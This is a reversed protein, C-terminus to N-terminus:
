QLYDAMVYNSIDTGRETLCFGEPTRKLLGQALHRRIVDGYVDDLSKGFRSAFDSTKVGATMRLGLFMFEEMKEQETLLHIETRVNGYVQEIEAEVCAKEMEMIYTEFDPINSFRVGNVYSAAGIGFGLYSHGRWYGSNHRCERGKLAYNSIEYRGYGHQALYERTYHYMKRDTEEDPLPPLEGADYLASFPTGPEIILSYASIHEPRWEVAQRLSDAWSDFTQGPLASMLDININDFGAARATKFAEGAQDATHIRGLLRLEEDHMSQVGMSLRNIGAKKLASLKDFDATGPNTELSIEADQRISFAEGLADMIRGIQGASLVSPTGGGFFVTDVPRGAPCDKQTKIERILAKVYRERDIDTQPASLFDCYRCKRLCFPIHVYLSILDTGSLFDGRCKTNQMNNESPRIEIVKEGMKQEAETKL